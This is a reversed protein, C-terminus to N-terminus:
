VRTRWAGGEKGVRREESREPSETGPTGYSTGLTGYSLTSPTLFGTSIMWYDNATEPDHKDVACLGVMNNAQVCPLTTAAVVNVRYPKRLLTHSYARKKRYLI